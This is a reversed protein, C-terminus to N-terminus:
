VLQWRFSQAWLFASDCLSLSVSCWLPFPHTSLVAGPLCSQQESSLILPLKTCGRRTGGRLGGGGWGSLLTRLFSCTLLMFLVRQHSSTFDWSSHTKEVCADKSTLQLQNKERQKRAASGSSGPPSCPRQRSLGAPQLDAQPAARTSGKRGPMPCDPQLM